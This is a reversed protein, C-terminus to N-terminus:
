GTGFFLLGFTCSGVRFLLDGQRLQRSLMRAIVQLLRDGAATGFQNNLEEFDNVKVLMWTLARRLKRARALRRQFIPLLRRRNVAGTLEDRHRLHVAWGVEVALWFGTAAGVAVYVAAAWPGTSGPELFAWIGLAVGVLVGALLTLLPWGAFATLLLLALAAWEPRLQWWALLALAALAALRLLWLSASQPFSWRRM